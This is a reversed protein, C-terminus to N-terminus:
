TTCRNAYNISQTPLTLGPSPSMNCPELLTDSYTPDILLEGELKSMKTGAVCPARYPKSKAMNVRNLLDTIYKTQGLHIGNSDRLVQIGLFYNLAGLDKMSFDLQLMAILEIITANHNRTIIIDDVYVLIFIHISGHHYAFLSSDV